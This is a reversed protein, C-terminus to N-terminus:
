GKDKMHVLWVLNQTKVKWDAQTRGRNRFGYILWYCLSLVWAEELCALPLGANPIFGPHDEQGTHKSTQSQHTARGEASTFKGQSCNELMHRIEQLVGINRNNRVIHAEESICIDRLLCIQFHKSEV